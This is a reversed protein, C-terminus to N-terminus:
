SNWQPMLLTKVSHTLWMRVKQETGNVAQSQPGGAKWLFLHKELNKKNYATIREHLSCLFSSFSLDAKGKYRCLELTRWVWSRWPYQFWLSWRVLYLWFPICSDQTGDGARMKVIPKWRSVVETSKASLRATPFVIPLILNSWHSCKLDRQLLCFLPGELSMWMRVRLILSYKVKCPSLSKAPM